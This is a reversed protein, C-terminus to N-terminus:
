GEISIDNLRIKFKKQDGRVESKWTAPIVLGALLHCKFFFFCSFNFRYSNWPEKSHDLCFTGITIVFSLLCAVM